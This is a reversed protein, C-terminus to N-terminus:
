FRWSASLGPMFYTTRYDAPASAMLTLPVEASMAFRESFAWEAGLAVSAAVLTEGPFLLHAEAAGFLSLREFVLPYWGVRVAAGYSSAGTGLPGAGLRLSRSIRYELMVVGFGGTEEVDYGGRAVLSLPRVTSTLVSKKRSSRGSRVTGPFLEEGARETADLLDAAEGGSMREHFRKEVAGTRTNFLQVSFVTLERVQAIDGSVVRDAGLAGAIEALCTDDGCGLMTKQREFGLATEVDKSTITQLGRDALEAVLADTVLEALKPEVGLGAKIPMVAVRTKSERPAATAALPLALAVALLTAGARRRARLLALAALAFILLSASSGGSSSCGYASKTGKEPGPDPPPPTVTVQATATNGLSDAGLVTDVVGSITGAQYTGSPNIFGGSQNDSISWVWGTGSGGSATFTWTRGSALTLASPTVTVGVGVSVTATAPNGAKDAVRVTYSVGPQTGAWFAGSASDITGDAPPSVLSWSWPTGMGGTATLILQGRPPVSFPSGPIAVFPVVTVTVTAENLLADRVRLIDVGPTPGATYTGSTTGLTGSSENAVFSWTWGAGSGGAATFTFSAGPFLSGGSPTVTIGPTVVVDVTAKNGASDTVELRDTVGGSAGATYTSGALSGGSPAFLVSWTYPAGAGGAPTLVLSGRPPLEPAAPAVTVPTLVTLYHAASAVGNVVVRVWAPGPPFATSVATTLSTETYTSVPAWSVTAGDAAQLQVLPHDAASSQTTGSSGESIGRFLTGGLTAVGSTLVRGPGSTITPVASPLAGRGEDFLDASTLAGAPFGGYGGAVLLKGDPLLTASGSRATTMAPGARWLGVAPEYLETTALATGVAGWGGFVLVKGNPLLAARHGYRSAVLSGTASCGPAAPDIENVTPVAGAANGGAVLVRGNPLLTVSSAGTVCWLTGTSSWADQAPDYEEIGYVAGAAGNGGVVWVKGSPLLIAEHDYRATALSAAQTWSRSVPDFLDVRSSASGTYGGAVLVKGDRLLTASASYHGEPLATTASWALTSPDYLEVSTLVGSAGYGGAVLVTGDSLLTATHGYRADAMSGTATWLGTGPDYLEASTMPTAPSGSFGGAVLVRGDPLLTATHGSRAGALAGTGVWAAQAPDLLEVSALTGADGAGGALLVQGSPVLTATQWSRATALSGQTSWTGGAPDYSEVSSVCGAGDRGGAVILRGSPLLTATHLGRAAGLPATASWTRAVPDYLEATDLYNSGGDWGGAVLVAGSPLRTATHRRRALGLSGVSSWVDAAPDYLEAGALSAGGAGGAVLVRGDGLLTATHEERATALSATASWTGAVPDYSEGSAVVGAENRGGVVLVKGSSLLTATFYARATALSGSTSWTGSAPDYLEASALVGSAGWGGVVLVKGSPLLTAVHGERAEMLSGTASWRGNAPDYLEAGAIPGMPSSSRYGGAVLVKGSPLLTATHLERVSAMAGVPEGGTLIRGALGPHRTALRAGGEQGCATLLVAAAAAASIVFRM